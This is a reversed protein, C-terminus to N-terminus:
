PTGETPFTAGVRFGGTPLYGYELTGEYLAVRESMGRLGQGAVVPGKSVPGDTVVEIELAGPLYSVTVKARAGGAYKAANTLAEQVVRYAALELGPTLPRAPGVTEVGVPVGAARADDVLRPLDGLGPQPAEPAGGSRDQLMALMRRMENMATRGTQEITALATAAQEPQTEILHSGVGAQVTIVSMAHAVVDHLERAIRSREEAVAREALQAEAAELAATKAELEAVHQRRAAILVGLVWVTVFIIAVYGIELLDVDWWGSVASGLMFAPSVLGIARLWLPRAWAGLAYLGFLTPLSQLLHTGHGTAAWTPFAVSLILVVLLPNRRVLLLPLTNAAVLALELAIGARDFGAEVWGSVAFVIALVLTVVPLARKSTLM